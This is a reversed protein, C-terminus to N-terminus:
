GLIELVKALNSWKPILLLINRKGVGTPLEFGMIMIGVKFCSKFYVVNKDLGMDPNKFKKSTKKRFIQMQKCFILRLTQRLAQSM